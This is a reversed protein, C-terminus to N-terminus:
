RCNFGFKFNKKRRRGIFERFFTIANELQKKAKDVVGSFEESEKLTFQKKEKLYKSVEIVFNKSLPQLQDSYREQRAAEYIDNYTIM